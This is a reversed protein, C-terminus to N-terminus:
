FNITEPASAIGVETDNIALIVQYQRAEPVGAVLNPRMDITHPHTISKLLTFTTETGRMCYINGSKCHELTFKIEVGQPVIALKVVTKVTAADFAVESGIVDLQEGITETYGPNNKLATIAPRILGMQTKVLTDRLAVKATAAILVADTADIEAIILQASNQAATIQAPTFGVSAGVTAIQAKYNVLWARQGTIDRPFFPKHIM